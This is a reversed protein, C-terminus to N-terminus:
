LLSATLQRALYLANPLEETSLGLFWRYVLNFAAQEEM